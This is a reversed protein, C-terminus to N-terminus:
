KGASGWPAKPAAKGTEQAAGPAAEAKEKPEIIAKEKQPSPEPNDIVAKAYNGGIFAEAKKIPVDYSKGPLMVGDPGAATTKMRITKM